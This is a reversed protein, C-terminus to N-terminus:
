LLSLLGPTTVLCFVSDRQNRFHTDTCVLINVVVPYNRPEPLCLAAGVDRGGM